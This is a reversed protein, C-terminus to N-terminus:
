TCRVFWFCQNKRHRGWGGRVCARVEAFTIAVHSGGGALPSQVAKDGAQQTGVPWNEQPPLAWDNVAWHLVLEPRPTDSHVDVRYSADAGSGVKTVRVSLGADDYRTSSLQEEQLAAAAEPAAAEVAAASSRLGAARRVLLGPIVAAIKSTSM